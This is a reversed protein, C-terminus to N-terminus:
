ENKEKGLILLNTYDSATGIGNDVQCTYKGQDSQVLNRIILNGNRLLQYHTQQDQFDSSDLNLKTGDRFWEYTPAPAAVPSCIITVEGKLAATKSKIM